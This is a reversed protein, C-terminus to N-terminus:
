AFAPLFPNYAPATLTRQCALRIVPLPRQVRSWIREGRGIRTSIRATPTDGLRSVTEGARM